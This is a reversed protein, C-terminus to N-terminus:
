VLNGGVRRVIVMVSSRGSYNLVMSWMEGKCMKIKTIQFKVETYEVKVHREIEREM